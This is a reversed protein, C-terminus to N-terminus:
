SRFSDILSAAQEPDAGLARRSFVALVAGADVELTVSRLGLRDRSQAQVSEVDSWALRIRTLPSNIVVGETTVLLRPTFVLDCAVYALLVVLAIGAMLRGPNDGALLLAVAAVVAGGAAALTYRRDPVFRAATPVAGFIPEDVLNEV